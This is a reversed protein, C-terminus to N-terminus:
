HKKIYIHDGKAEKCLNCTECTTPCITELIYNETDKIVHFNNDLMFGSGNIVLNSPKNDMIEKKLDKRATYGYIIINEGYETNKLLRALRKLKNVDETTEFDGAENFRIYETKIREKELIRLIDNLIDEADSQKWYLYQKQRYEPTAKNYQAEAKLAYCINRVKCLNLGASPCKYATSMNFILTDKGIKLNGRKIPMTEPMTAKNIGKEIKKITEAKLNM